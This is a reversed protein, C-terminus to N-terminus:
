SEAHYSCERGVTLSFTDGQRRVNLGVGLFEVGAALALKAAAAYAPDLDGALSCRECDTRDVLYLQVARGGRRVVGVLEELHAKGRASVADPFEALGPTRSWTVNKVEVWCDARSSHGTLLLDCRRGGVGIPAEPQIRVYGALAPIRGALVAAQALRNPLSTDVVAVGDGPLGMLVLTHSLKRKPNAAARIWAPRGPENLSAMSGTNPLHVTLESGDARRVAAFFRQWRRLFM